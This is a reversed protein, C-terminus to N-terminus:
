TREELEDVFRALENLNDRLDNQYSKLKECTKNLMRVIPVYFNTFSVLMIVTGCLWFTFAPVGYYGAASIIETINNIAIGIIGFVIIVAIATIIQIVAVILLNRIYKIDANADKAKIEYETVM